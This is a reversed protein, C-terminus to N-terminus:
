DEQSLYYATMFTFSIFLFVEFIRGMRKDLDINRPIRMEQRVLDQTTPPPIEISVDELHPLTQKDIRM